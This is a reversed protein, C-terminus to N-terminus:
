GRFRGGMAAGSYGFRGDPSGDPKSIESTLPVRLVPGHQDTAVLSTDAATLPVDEGVGVGDTVDVCESEWVEEEVGVDVGVCVGVGVSDGVGDGRLFPGGTKLASAAASRNAGAAGFGACPRAATGVWPMSKPFPSEKASAFACSEIRSSSEGNCDVVSVSKDEGITTKRYEVEGGVGRDESM